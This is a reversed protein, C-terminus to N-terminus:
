RNVLGEVLSHAADTDWARPGLALAVLEGNKDVIFSSPLARVGYANAVELQPDLAIAFTLKQEKVFAPVSKANTDAAVAVMVFGTDRHQQYLREMSPMEERCPPCWTAWFNIFVVRGRQDRLRFRTGDPTALTFDEAIKARAPRILDLDKVADAISLTRGGRGKAPAPGGSPAAPPPNGAPAAPAVNGTPAASPAAPEHAGATLWAGAALAVLSLAGVTVRARTTVHRRM